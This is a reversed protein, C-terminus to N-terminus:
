ARGIVKWKKDHSMPMSEEIVVTEGSKYENKEDHAKYKQHSKYKRRYLPHEKITEVRVVITKDMKDSVILGTLKRKPM